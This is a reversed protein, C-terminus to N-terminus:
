PMRRSGLDGDNKLLTFANGSASIRKDDTMSIRCYGGMFANYNDTKARMYVKDGVSDLHITTGAEYDIWNRKDYSIDLNPLTLTSSTSLTVTAGADVATFCLPGNKRQNEIWSKISAPPKGLFVLNGM